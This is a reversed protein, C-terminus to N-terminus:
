HLLRLVRSIALLARTVQDGEMVIRLKEGGELTHEVVRGGREKVKELEQERMKQSRAAYGVDTSSNGIDTGSKTCSLCVGIDSAPVPSAYSLCLTIPFPVLWPLICLPYLCLIISLADLCLLIASSVAVPPYFPYFLSLIASSVLYSPLLPLPAPPYLRLLIAYSSLLSYLCLLISSSVPPYSSLRPLPAPPYSPYLCLFIAYCSLLPYLRILISSPLSM